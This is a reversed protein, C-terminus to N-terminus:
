KTVIVFPHSLSILQPSKFLGRQCGNTLKKLLSDLSYRFWRRFAAGRRGAAGTVERVRYNRRDAILLDPLSIGTTGRALPSDAVVM